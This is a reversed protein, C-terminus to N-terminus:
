PQGGIPRVPRPPQREDGANASYRREAEYADELICYRVFAQDTRPDGGQRAIKAILCADRRLAAELEALLGTGRLATKDNESTESM